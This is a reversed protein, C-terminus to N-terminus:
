DSAGDDFLCEFFQDTKGISGSSVIMLPCSRETRHETIEVTPKPIDFVQRIEVYSGSVNNLNSGCGQCNMPTHIEIYDPNEVQALNKGIRGEQGGLAPESAKLHANSVTAVPLSVATPATKQWSLRWNRFEYNYSNYHYKRRSCPRKSFAFILNFPNQCCPWFM